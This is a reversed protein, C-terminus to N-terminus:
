CTTVNSLWHAAAMRMHTSQEFWPRAPPAKGACCGPRATRGLAGPRRARGARRVWCRRRAEKGHAAGTLPAAAEHRRPRGRWDPARSRPAGRQPAAAAGPCRARARGPLVATTCTSQMAPFSASSPGSSRAVGSLVPVCYAGRGRASRRALPAGVHPAPRHARIAYCLRCRLRAGLCAM